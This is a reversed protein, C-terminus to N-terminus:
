TRSVKRILEQKIHRFEQETLIEESLEALKRLEEAISTLLYKNLDAVNRDDPLHPQQMIIASTSRNSTWM